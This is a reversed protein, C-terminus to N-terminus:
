DDGGEAWYLAMPPLQEGSGASDCLAAFVVRRQTDAIRVAEATMCRHCRCGPPTYQERRTAMECLNAGDRDTAAGPYKKTRM